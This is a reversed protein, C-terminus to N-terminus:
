VGQGLIVLIAIANPMVTLNNVPRFSLIAGPEEVCKAQIAQVLCTANMPTFLKLDTVIGVFAVLRFNHEPLNTGQM